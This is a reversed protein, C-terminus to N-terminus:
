GNNNKMTHYALPELSHCTLYPSPHGPYPTVARIMNYGYKLTWLKTKLGTQNWSTSFMIETTGNNDHM